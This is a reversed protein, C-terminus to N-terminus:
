PEPVPHIEDMLVDHLAVVSIGYKRPLQLERLSRGVWASPVAMEQLSFDTGLQVYNLLSRSSIRKGLRIGSEREPFITETVGIKDILRAHDHSVVKVYIEDVGLDRLVLATMASATIDDGTSVVAADADEAGIRRLTRVDTGDGAAARAVLRGMQDVREPDTDLAAVDHGISHLTEAVSSGFNGLGVVVFRKTKM